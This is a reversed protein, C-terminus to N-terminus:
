RRHSRRDAGGHPTVLPRRGGQCTPQVHFTPSTEAYPQGLLDAYFAGSATPSEVYLIVLSFSPM